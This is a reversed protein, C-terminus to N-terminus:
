HGNTTAASLVTWIASYLQASYSLYHSCEIVFQIRTIKEVGTSSTLYKHIASYWWLFQIKHAHLFLVAHVALLALIAHNIDNNIQRNQMQRFLVNAHKNWYVAVPFQQSYVSVTAHIPSPRKVPRYQINSCPLKYRLAFDTCNVGYAIWADTVVTITCHVISATPKTNQSYDDDNVTHAM